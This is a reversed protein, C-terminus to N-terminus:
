ADDWLAPHGCAKLKNFFCYRHLVLFCLGTYLPTGTHVRCTSESLQTQWKHPKLFVDYNALATMMRWSVLCILSLKHWFFRVELWVKFAFKRRICESELVPWRFSLFLHLCFKPIFISVSFSPPSRLGGDKDGPPRPHTLHQCKFSKKRREWLFGGRSASTWAPHHKREAKHPLLQLPFPPSSSPTRVLHCSPMLPSPPHVCPRGPGWPCLASSRLSSSAYSPFTFLFHLPRSPLSVVTWM